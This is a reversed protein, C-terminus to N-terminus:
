LWLARIDRPLTTKVDDIEGPTVRRSLVAFLALAVHEANVFVENPFAAAIHAVFQERSRERLPKNAPHWGEFYFGRVLM